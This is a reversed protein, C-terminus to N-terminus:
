NTEVKARISKMTDSGCMMCVLSNLRLNCSKCHGEKWDPVYKNQQPTYRLQDFGRERLYINQIYEHRFIYKWRHQYTSKASYKKIIQHKQERGEMTGISLGFGYSSLLQKAHVPAVNCFTWLSPTVSSDYFCQSRFLFRGASNMQKIDDYTVDTIRASYSVLKRLNICQYHIVTLNFNYSSSVKSQLLLIIDPFKRLFSASEKGRFRFGFVKDNKFRSEDFWTIVRKQLLNCNMDCQVFKLFVVFVNDQPLEKFLVSKSTISADALCINLLKMFQEKCVNNKLHLPECTALDIYEEVLPVFEQRSNKSGIFTTLENRKTKPAKGSEEIKKAKAAVATATSLRHQYSFPTWESEPGYGFTYDPNRHNSTSVNAFTSFFKASNPLAGELFALNKMDNPLSGMKFEIPTDTGNVNVYFITAELERIESMLKGIYKRVVESDEKVDGGFITFNESSSAIRRGVNLFSLLYSTGAGPAEDGGISMLFLTSNPDKREFDFLKLDDERYKYVNLYFQALRPAFEILNRFYGVAKEESEDSQCLSDIDTLSGIDIANIAKSLRAYTVFNAADKSKNAKVLHLYKRKSMVDYSYFVNMSRLVNEEARYYARRKMAVARAVVKQAITKKATM